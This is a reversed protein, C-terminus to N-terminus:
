RGPSGAGPMRKAPASTMTWDMAELARGLREVILDIEEETIIFPPALMLLDGRKGDAHGV